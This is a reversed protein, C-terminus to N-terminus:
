LNRSLIPVHNKIYAKTKEQHKIREQELYYDISRKAEQIAEEEELYGDCSDGTKEVSYGYFGTFLVHEVFDPIQKKAAQFDGLSGDDILLLEAYDGQSYGRVTFMYTDIKCAYCLLEIQEISDNSAYEMAEIYDGYSCQDWYEKITNDYRHAEMKMFARTEQPLRKYLSMTPISDLFREIHKAAADDGFSEYIHGGHRVILGNYGLKLDDYMFDCSDYDIHTNIDIGRYIETNLPEM